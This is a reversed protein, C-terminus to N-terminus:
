ISASCSHKFTDGEEEENTESEAASALDAPEKKAKEKSLSVIVTDQQAGKRNVHELSLGAWWTKLTFYQKSHNIIWLGITESVIQKLTFYNEFDFIKLNFYQLFCITESDLINM